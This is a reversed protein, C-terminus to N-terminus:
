SLIRSRKQFTTQSWEIQAKKSSSLVEAFDRDNSLIVSGIEEGKSPDYIPLHEKSYSVIKGNIYNHIKM